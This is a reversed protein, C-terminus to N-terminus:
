KNLGVYWENCTCDGRMKNYFEETVEIEKVEPAKRNKRNWEVWATIYRGSGRFKGRVEAAMSGTGRRVWVRQNERFHKTDFPMKFM